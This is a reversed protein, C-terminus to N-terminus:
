GRLLKLGPRKRRRLRPEAAKRLEARRDAVVTQTIHHSFM